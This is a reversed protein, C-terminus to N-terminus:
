HMGFYLVGYIATCILLGIGIATYKQGSDSGGGSRGIHEITRFVHRQAASTHNTNDSVRVEDFTRDKVDPAM